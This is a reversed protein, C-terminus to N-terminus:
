CPSLQHLANADLVTLAVGHTRIIGQRKFQSLTRTITERTTATMSALEDHTLPMTFTEPKSATSESGLWDLLLCALRGASSESLAIRRAEDFAARYEGAVTRAAGVASEPFERFLTALVHNRIVRVRCPELAETTAEHPQESLSASLGLVSGTRAIRLIMTRGEKSTASVKVRGACLVFVADCQDGERFMVSGRPYEMALSNATVFERAKLPLNCFLHKDPNLCVTCPSNYCTSM